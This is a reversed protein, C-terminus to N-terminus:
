KRLFYLYRNKDRKLISSFIFNLQVTSLDIYLLRIISYQKKLINHECYEYLRSQDIFKMQKKIIQKTGTEIKKQNVLNYNKLIIM